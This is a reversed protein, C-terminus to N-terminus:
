FTFVTELYGYNGAAGDFSSRIIGQGFAHAYLANVTLFSTPRVTLLLTALYALENRGNTPLGAYGFFDDKTAGGGSYVLDRSANVRLWHLDTRLTVMPHPDLIVQGFVDQDNMLNYFPFQAYLWATPLMQFFTGHTDDDPNQDGSASNIGARLWPRAWLASLRYGAELGYAWASQTQGQWDGGQGYGYLLGDVVGCGAEHVRAVSAGVTYLTASQGVTAERAAAPRNDIFLVDRHDGYYYVALSAITNALLPSVSGATDKLNLTLGALDIDLERNADVEYGGYTPRFGFGTVNFWRGDFGLVGGDFSRGVATYDFPGILRQSLRWQQLWKLTAHEAPADLGDSYLQRGLKAFFGELGFLRRTRLWGQRLFAGNQLSRNTNARYVAGVGVADEPVNALTSDQFQFLAEYPDASIRAGLQFKNQFFNYRNNPTASGPPPDFWGAFEGRVRDFVELRIKSGWPGEAVLPPVSPPAGAAATACVILASVVITVGRM